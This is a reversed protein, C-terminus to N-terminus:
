LPVTGPHRFLWRAEDVGELILHLCGNSLTGISPNDALAFVPLSSHLGSLALALMFERLCRHMLIAHTRPRYCGAM